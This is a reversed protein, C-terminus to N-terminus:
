KTMIEYFEDFTLTNKGTSSSKELMSELDTDPINEGLENSMRRLSDLTIEDSAPDRLLDFLRRISEKSESPEDILKNNIAEVFTNFGIGSKQTETTDLENIVKLVMPNKADFGLSQMASKLDKPDICGTQNTDFLDFAQRIEDVEDQSLRPREPKKVQEQM